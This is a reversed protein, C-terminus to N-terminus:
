FIDLPTTKVVPAPRTEFPTVLDGRQMYACAHVIEATSMKEQVNVVRLRGLDAVFTGMARMLEPQEKFWPRMLPDSEVRSVLFQDGVKVGDRAGRNIFVMDNQKFVIRRDSQSG